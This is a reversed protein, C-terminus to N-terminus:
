VGDSNGKSEAAESPPVDTVMRRACRKCFSVTASGPARHEIVDPQGWKPRDFLWPHPMRIMVLVSAVNECGFVFCQAKSSAAPIPYDHYISM